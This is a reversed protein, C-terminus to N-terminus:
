IVTNRSINKLINDIKSKVSEVSVRDVCLASNNSLVMKQCETNKYGYYHGQPVCHACPMDELVTGPIIDGEDLEDVCYPFFKYKNYVGAICVSPVRHAAALHMTASDNGLVIQAFEVIASWESFSTKGIHSIIRDSNESYQNMALFDDNEDIGGCVHVDWDYKEIIYDAIQAFRKPSWRKARASSGPCIVCYNGQIIKSQHRIKPLRGKFENMGLYQLFLRHRQIMMLEKQPIVTEDYAIKKLLAMYLPKEMKFSSLLGVKRKANVSATFLESSTSSGPVLLLNFSNDYKLVISRYYSFSNMFKKYDITEVRIGTPFDVVEDWFSKISPRCLLLVDWGKAVYLDIYGQIASMLIIADGFIGNFVIALKKEDIAKKSFHNIFNRWLASIMILIRQM